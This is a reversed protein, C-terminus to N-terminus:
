LYTLVKNLRVKPLPLTWSSVKNEEPFGVFKTLIEPKPDAVVNTKVAESFLPKTQKSNDGDPHNLVKLEKIDGAFLFVVL